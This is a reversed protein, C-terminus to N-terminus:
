SSLYLSVFKQLVKEAEPTEKIDKTAEEINKGQSYTPFLSLRYKIDEKTLEPHFQATYINNKYRFIQTECRESSGLLVVDSPINTVSEKHGEQVLFTEKLDGFLKDSKGENNLRIEFTGTERMNENPLVVGGLRQSLLQHGFCIGLTPFDNKLIYDVLKKTNNFAKIIPEQNLSLDYQGSGGFIVAGVDQLLVEPEYEFNDLIANLVKLESENIKLKNLFCKVEHEQTVDDRFQILLIKKM